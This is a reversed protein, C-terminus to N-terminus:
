GHISKFDALEHLRYRWVAKTDDQELRDLAAQQIWSLVEGGSENDANVGRTCRAPFESVFHRLSQRLLEDGKGDDANGATGNNGSEEDAVDLGRASDEGGDGQDDNGKGLM